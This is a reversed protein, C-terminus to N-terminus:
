LLGLSTCDCLPKISNSACAWGGEVGWFSVKGQGRGGVGGVSKLQWDGKASGAVCWVMMVMDLAAWARARASDEKGVKLQEKGHAPPCIFVEWSVM